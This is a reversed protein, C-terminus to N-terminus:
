GHAGLSGSMSFTGMLLIVTPVCRRRGVDEWSAPSELVLTPPNYGGSPSFAATGPVAQSATGVRGSFSRVLGTM